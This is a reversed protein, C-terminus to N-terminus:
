QQKTTPQNTSYPGPLPTEPESLTASSAEQPVHAGTRQSFIRFQVVLDLVVPVPKGDKVAPEFQAKRISAVANEDLGFGIPRGVAIEGPKGDRGVVVHYLAVGAVGADQAFDNSPPEFNTILRAKQDVTSQRLVAPDSPKFNSKNAAAQFYDRWYDPLSAVMREDLGQSFVRELAEELRQNAAAQSRAGGESAELTVTPGTAPLAAEDRSSKSKKPPKVVQARDISIRLVKKKPTIRVRDSATLPDETASAGLFHLGYRIGEFQVRHKGVNVKGIEVMSLTYSLQPSTGAFRGLEDFRLESGSYGGRLYVMKGQFRRRLEDQSIPKAAPMAPHSAGGSHTSPARSPTTAPQQADAFIGLALVLAAIRAPAAIM